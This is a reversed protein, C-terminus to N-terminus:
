WNALRRRTDRNFGDKVGGLLSVSIEGVVTKVVEKKKATYMARKKSSVATKLVQNSRKYVGRLNAGDAGKGSTLASTTVTVLLETGDIKEGDIACNAVYAAGDIAANAMASGFAGVGSAALAGSAAAALYDVASSTPVLSEAFSKGSALNSVVDSVYQSVVGVIAGVVLHWWEGQSDARIVPNNGCYAFM